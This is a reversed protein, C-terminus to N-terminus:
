SRHTIGLNRSNLYIVLLGEFIIYEFDELTLASLQVLLAKSRGLGQIAAIFPPYRSPEAGARVHATCTYGCTRLRNGLSRASTVFTSQDPIVTV